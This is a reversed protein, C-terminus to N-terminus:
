VKSPLRVISFWFDKISTVVKTFQEMDIPKTIYCNAHHDYSSLIDADSSSTTLIVVPITRLSPTTKIFSLVDRGDLAPLNLDLLVLDPRPVETYPAEKKLFSVAANGDTVIHLQNYIKSRELAIQTLRIDSPSDEVLLIEIPLAASM